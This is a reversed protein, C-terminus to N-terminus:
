QLTQCRLEPHSCVTCSMPSAVLIKRMLNSKHVEVELRLALDSFRHFTQEAQTWCSNFPNYTTPLTFRGAAALVLPRPPRSLSLFPELVMFKVCVPALSSLNAVTCSCHLAVGGGRIIQMPRPSLKCSNQHPSTSFQM